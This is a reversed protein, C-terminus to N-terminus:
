QIYKFRRNDSNSNRDLDGVCFTKVGDVTYTAVMSKKSIKSGSSDNHNRENLEITHHTFILPAWAFITAYSIVQVLDQLINILM